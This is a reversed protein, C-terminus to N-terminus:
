VERRLILITDALGVQLLLNALESQLQLQFLPVSIQYLITCQMKLADISKLAM